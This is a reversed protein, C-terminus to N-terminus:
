SGSVLEAASAVDDPTNLAVTPVGKLARKALGVLAGAPALEMMGQIGDRTFSEMCLDWRVPRAVQDVLYGLTERHEVRSGDRNTYLPHVGERTIVGSSAEALASVASHMYSTHFAGAVQLPIVRTGEPPNEQFRALASREGAIVVQGAGNYNAAYLGAEELAAALIELDAGLVASMGTPIEAAAAAMARGRLAVLRVADDDSIVGSLAAATFEGVSHGAFALSAGEPLADLLARGAIIGAAVILPQAVATDTITDQDSITGHEILDLEILESWRALNRRHSSSELWPELFGSKQSGQGPAAIVFM